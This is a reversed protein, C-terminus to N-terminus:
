DVLLHHIIIISDVPAEQVIQAESNGFRLVLTTGARALTSRCGM